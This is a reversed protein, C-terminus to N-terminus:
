HRYKNGRKANIKTENQKRIGTAAAAEGSCLVQKPVVVLLSVQHVLGVHRGHLAHVVGQGVGVAVHEGVDGAEEGQQDADVEGGDCTPATPRRTKERTRNM